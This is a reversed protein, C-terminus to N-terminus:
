FVAPAFLQDRLLRIKDPIPRLIDLNDPSKEITVYEPGIVATTINERPIDMAKWALQVIQNLGM